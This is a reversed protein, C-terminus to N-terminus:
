RVDGTESQSSDPREYLEHVRGSDLDLVQGAKLLISNRQGKRQVAVWGNKALRARARTSLRANGSANVKGNVWLVRRGDSGTVIGNIKLHSTNVATSSSADQQVSASNQRRLFDLRTRQESTTFLRELGQTSAAYIPTPLTIFSVLLAGIM